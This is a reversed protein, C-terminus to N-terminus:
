ILLLTLFFFFFDGGTPSPGELCISRHWSSSFAADRSLPTSCTLGLPKERAMSTHSAKGWTVPLAPPRPSCPSRLPSHRPGGGPLCVPWPSRRQRERCAPGGLWVFVSLSDTGAPAVSAAAERGGGWSGWFLQRWAAWGGRCAMSVM